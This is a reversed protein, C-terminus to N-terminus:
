IALNFKQMKARLLLQAACRHIRSCEAAFHPYLFNGIRNQPPRLADKSTTKIGPAALAGYSFWVLNLTSVIDDKSLSIRTTTKREGWRRFLFFAAPQTSQRHHSYFLLKSGFLLRTLRARASCIRWLLRSIKWKTKANTCAWLFLRHQQLSLSPLFAFGGRLDSKARV